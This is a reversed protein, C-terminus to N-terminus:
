GRLKSGAIQARVIRLLIETPETLDTSPDALLKTVQEAILRDEVAEEAPDRWRIRNKARLLECLVLVRLIDRDPASM